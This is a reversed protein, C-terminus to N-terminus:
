IPCLTCARIERAVTAMSVMVKKIFIWSNKADSDTKEAAVQQLLSSRSRCVANNLLQPILTEWLLEQSFKLTLCDATCHKQFMKICIQSVGNFLNITKRDMEGSLNVTKIMFKYWLVESFLGM